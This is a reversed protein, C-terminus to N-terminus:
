LANNMTNSSAMCATQAVTQTTLHLISKYGIVQTRPSYSM